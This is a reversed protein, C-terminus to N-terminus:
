AARRSPILPSSPVVPLSRNNTPRPVSGWLQWPCSAFYATALWTSFSFPRERWLAYLHKRATAPHGHRLAIRIWRTRSDGSKVEVSTKSENKGQKVQAAPQLGRRSHADKVSAQVAHRQEVRRTACVSQPHQRYQLLVQRLNHIEGVESMRLWLDFDEAHAYAARYGGVKQLTEKRMLIASHWVKVRKGTLLKVALEQPDFDPEVIGLPAGEPDIMLANAGLAVVDPHQKMYALQLAFREPHCVDDADMRAIWTGKAEQVGRNLAAVMGGHEAFILRIRADERALSKLVEQTGDASGDDVILFEFDGFTQDLISQTAERVFPAVNYAPMVVSILPSHSAQDQRRTKAFDDM